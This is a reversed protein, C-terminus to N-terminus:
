KHVLIFFHVLCFNCFLVSFIVQLQLIFCNGLVIAENREQKSNLSIMRGKFLFTQQSQGPRFVLQGKEVLIYFKWIQLQLRCTLKMYQATIYASYLRVQGSLKIVSKALTSPLRWQLIARYTGM